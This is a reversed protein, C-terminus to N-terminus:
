EIRLGSFTRSVLAVGDGSSTEVGLRRRLSVKTVMVSDPVSQGVNQSSPAVCHEAHVDKHGWSKM